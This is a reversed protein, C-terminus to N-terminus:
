QPRFVEYVHESERERRREILCFWPWRQDNCLDDEWGMVCLVAAPRGDIMVVGSTGDREVLLLVMDALVPVVVMGEM